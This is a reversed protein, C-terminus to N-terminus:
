FYMTPRSIRCRFAPYAIYNLMGETKAGVKITRCRYDGDPIPVGGIGADPDLLKGERDVDAGNGAARAQAIAKTFAKRWDRLRQRDKDTAAQQWSQTPPTAQTTACATLILLLAASLKKM